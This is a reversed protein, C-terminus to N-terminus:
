QQITITTTGARSEVENYPKPGVVQEELKQLETRKRRYALQGKREKHVNQILCLHKLYLMLFNDGCM